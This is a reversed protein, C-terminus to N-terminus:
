NFPPLCVRKFNLEIQFIFLCTIAERCIGLEPGNLWDGFNEVEFGLDRWGFFARFDTEKENNEKPTRAGKLIAIVLM